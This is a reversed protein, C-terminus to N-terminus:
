RSAGHVSEPQLVVMDPKTPSELPEEMLDLVRDLGALSTQFGAASSALMALPQLLSALYWIFM